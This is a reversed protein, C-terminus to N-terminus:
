STRARRRTRTVPELLRRVGARSRDFAQADGTLFGTNAAVLVADTEFAIQDVDMGTALQRRAVAAELQTRLLAIWELRSAVLSDRVSGPRPGFENLCHTVFCGGPFEREAIYALWHEVLALFREVGEPESMAPAVVVEVFRRRADAITALQLDEKAGFLAHVNSKSVQLKQALQALSLGGLGEVSAIEAAYQLIRARTADGRQRRGDPVAANSM